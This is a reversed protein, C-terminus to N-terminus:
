VHRIKEALIELVVARLMKMEAFSREKNEKKVLSITAKKYQRDLSKKVLWRVLLLRHLPQGEARM